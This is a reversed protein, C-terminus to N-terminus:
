FFIRESPNSLDFPSFGFANAIQAKTLYGQIAFDVALKNFAVSLKDTAIENLLSKNKVFPELDTKPFLFNCIEFAEPPLSFLDDTYELFTFANGEDKVTKIKPCHKHTKDFPVGILYLSM